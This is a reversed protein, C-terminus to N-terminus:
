TSGALGEGVSNANAAVEQRLSKLLREVEGRSGSVAGGPLPADDFVAAAWDTAVTDIRADPHELSGRSIRLGRSNCELAYDYTSLQRGRVDSLRLQIQVGRALRTNSAMSRMALVAADPTLGGSAPVTPSRQAWRGLAHMIPELEHGWATLEYVKVRAPPDLERSELIGRDELSRLRTTMVAPTIGHASSQLESFRKPGLFLERIVIYAWHESILEMAHATRCADGHDAYTKKVPM